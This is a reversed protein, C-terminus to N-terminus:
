YLSVPPLANMVLVLLIFAALFSLDIPLRQLAPIRSLVARVPLVIPSTITSLVVMVPSDERIFWSLIAQGFMAFYIVQLALQLTTAFLYFLINVGDNM